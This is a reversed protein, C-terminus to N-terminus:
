QLIEGIKNLTDRDRDSKIGKLYNLARIDLFIIIFIGAIISSVYGYYVVM